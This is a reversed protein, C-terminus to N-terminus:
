RAQTIKPVRESSALGRCPGLPLIPLNPTRRAAAILDTISSCMATATATNILSVPLWGGIDIHVLVVLKLAGNPLAEFFIGNGPSTYARILKTKSALKEIRTLGVEEAYPACRKIGATVSIVKEIRGQANRVIKTLRGDVFLRPSVVGGVAPASTFAEVDMWHGDVEFRKAAHIWTLTKDWELKKDPNAIIGMMAEADLGPVVTELRFWRNPNSRHKASVIHYPESKEKTWACGEPTASTFFAAETDRLTTRMLDRLGAPAQGHEGPSPWQSPKPHAALFKEM